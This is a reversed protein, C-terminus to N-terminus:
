VHYWSIGLGKMEYNRAGGATVRGTGASLILLAAEEPVAGTWFMMEWKRALCHHYSSTACKLANWTMDMWNAHLIIHNQENTSLDKNGASKLQVRGILMWFSQRKLFRNWFLFCIGVWAIEFCVQGNSYLCGMVSEQWKMTTGVQWSQKQGTGGCAARDKKSEEITGAM